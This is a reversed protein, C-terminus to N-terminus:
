KRKGAKKAEEYVQIASKKDELTLKEEEYAAKEVLYILTGIDCDKVQEFIHGYEYPTNVGADSIEKGSFRDQIRKYLMIVAKEPTAKKVRFMFAKERIFPTLVRFIFLALLILASIGAFILLVRFVITIIYGFVGGDGTEDPPYIAAVTPEYVVFGTNQIYVEPYAHSTKTRVVYETSHERGIEKDPVFGEVYRATLGAARALLVYASTFDSCTGTKGKFLFYEVSDDPAEYTLDYVFDEKIFYERLAEAKEWDYTCDGTIDLALEKISDPILDTNNRCAESYNQAFKEEDLFAKVVEEYEDENNEELIQLLVNLMDASTENNFDAANAKIWRNIAAYEDYYKVSYIINGDLPAKVTGMTGHLTAYVYSDTIKEVEGTRVPIICSFSEFNQAEIWLTSYEEKIDADSIADIGFESLFGPQLSEAKIMAKSLKDLSLLSNAKNFDEQSESYRSYLSDSYWRDMEFDYYDFIQRKLYIPNDTDVGYLVYLKRNNLKNFNDANGSYQSNVTYEKPLSVTTNGGLFADEFVHYYRTEKEKPVALAILVFFLAYMGVSLLGSKFGVIRKDRDRNKRTNLMLSAVNLIIVAMVYIIEIDRIIKVYVVFPILSTLLLASTRYLVQTYFYIVMSFFVTLVLVLSALYYTTNRVVDGGSMFWQLYFPDMFAIRSFLYLLLVMLSTTILGGAVKHKQTFSCLAFCAACVGAQILTWHSLLPIDFAAFVTISLILALLYPLLKQGMVKKVKHIFVHKEPENACAPYVINDKSNNKAEEIVSIVSVANIDGNHEVATCADWYSNPSIYVAAADKRIIDGDPYRKINEGEGFSYEAMSLRINEVDADDEAEYKVYSGGSMVYLNVCYGGLVLKKILGLTGEVAEEAIRPIIEDEPCQAYRSIRKMDALSVAKRNYFSDLVVNVSRSATEDDLRVLLKDRKASQKWNIRKLPDGPVYERNDYGPFGGFTKTVSEVTDESDDENLSIQLIKLIRDDNVSMDAVDPIVSINKRMDEYSINKAKRSIIGLYDTASVSEIGVTSKGCIRAEFDVKFTKHTFPLISAIIRTKACRVGEGNLVVIEVPTTPFVSRNRVTVTMECHDGKLLIKDEMSCEVSLSRMTILAFFVSLILALIMAILIFWGVTADLYLAFIVSLAIGLLYSIIGKVANRVKM